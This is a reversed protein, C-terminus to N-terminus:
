SSPSSLDIRELLRARERDAKRPSARIHGHGARIALTDRVVATQIGALAQRRRPALARAPPLVAWAAIVYKVCM